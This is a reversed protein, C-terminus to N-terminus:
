PRRAAYDAYSCLAIGLEALTAAIRPDTLTRMEEEREIAYVSSFAPSRYGPHCGLETWEAAIETRLIAELAAVGVHDLDTVRWEWQGYFGGVYAVEGYGRLPICYPELWEAFRPLLTATRHAHKHSDVHTPPRGMLRDFAAFQRAFEDRVAGVNDTDFAREDEGWVDWHLGVSLAPHARSLAVADHVAGGTVMLSASTVIGRVHCEIIGRNIGESAGFDDANVILNRQM